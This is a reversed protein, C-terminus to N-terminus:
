APKLFVTAPRANAQRKQNRGRISMLVLAASAAYVVGTILRAPHSGVKGPPPNLIFVCVRTVPITRAAASTTLPPYAFAAFGGLGTLAFFNSASAIAASSAM